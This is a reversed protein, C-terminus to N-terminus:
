LCTESSVTIFVIHIVDKLLRPYFWVKDHITKTIALWVSSIVSASLDHAVKKGFSNGFEQIIKMLYDYEADSEPLNNMLVVITDVLRTSQRDNVYKDVLCHVLECTARDDLERGSEHSRIKLLISHLSSEIILKNIDVLTVICEIWKASFFFYSM